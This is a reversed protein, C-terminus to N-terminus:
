TRGVSESDRLIKLVAPDKPSPSTLPETGLCLGIQDKNDRRSFTSSLLLGDMLGAATKKAKQEVDYLVHVNQEIDAQVFPLFMSYRDELVGIKKEKGKQFVALFVVLFALIEEAQRVGFIRPFSPSFREFDCPIGQFPFPLSFWFPM